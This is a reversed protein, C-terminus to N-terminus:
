RGGNGAEEARLRDTRDRIATICGRGARGSSRMSGAMATSRGELLVRIPEPMFHWSGNIMGSEWVAVWVVSKGIIRTCYIRVRMSTPLLAPILGAEALGYGTRLQMSGREPAHTCHIPTSPV